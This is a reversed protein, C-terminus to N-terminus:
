LKESAWKRLYEISSTLAEEQSFTPLLADIQRLVESHKESSDDEKYPCSTNWFISWYRDRLRLLEDLKKEKENM